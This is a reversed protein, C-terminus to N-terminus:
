LRWEGGAVDHQYRSMVPVVSRNAQGVAAGVIGPAARQVRGDALGEVQVDFYKSPVVTIKGGGLEHNPVIQGASSPSFFEPGNEGVIYGRGPMVAGGSARFGGFLSKIGSWIGNFIGGTGGGGVNKFLSQFGENVVMRGLDQLLGGIADRLNRAGTIADTFAESLGDRVREGAQEVRDLAEEQRYVETVLEAIKARQEDTAAAGAQRMAIAVKREVETSGILGKEFELQEILDAVAKAEREAESAAKSRGGGSRERKPTYNPNRPDDSPLGRRDDYTLFTGRDTRSDETQSLDSIKDRAVDRRVNERPDEQRALERLRALRAAEQSAESLQKTLAVAEGTMSRLREEAKGLNSRLAEAEPPLEGLQDKADSLSQYIEYLARAMEPATAADSFEDMKAVLQGAVREPLEFAHAMERIDDGAKAAGPPLDALASRIEELESTFESLNGVGIDRIQSLFEAIGDKARATAIDFGLAADGFRAALEGQSLGLLESAAKAQEMTESYRKLAEDAVKAGDQAGGFVTYLAAGVGVVTGIAVGLGGFGSLLQPLQQSLARFASTGGAIQVAVDQVQYGVNQMGTGFGSTASQTQKIARGFNQAETASKRLGSSFQASDLALNVRLAGVMAM